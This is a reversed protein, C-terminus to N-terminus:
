CAKDVCRNIWVLYGVIGTVILIGGVQLVGVIVALVKDWMAADAARREKAASKAKDTAKDKLVIRKAREEKILEFTGQGWKRDIEVGLNHLAVDNQKQALIDNAVSSISTDSANLLNDLAGAIDKVEVAKDILLKASSIAIGITVPDM